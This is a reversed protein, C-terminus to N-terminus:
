KAKQQQGILEVRPYDTPHAEYWIRTWIQMSIGIMKELLLLCKVYEANLGVTPLMLNFWSLHNEMNTLYGMGPWHQKGKPYQLSLFLNNSKDIPIHATRLQLVKGKVVLICLDPYRVLEANGLIELFMYYEQIELWHETALFNLLAPCFPLDKGMANYEKQSINRAIYNLVFDSAFVLCSRFSELNHFISGSQTALYRADQLQKNAKRCDEEYKADNYLGFRRRSTSVGKMKPDGFVGPGLM